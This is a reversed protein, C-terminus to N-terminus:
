TLRSEHDPPLELLDSDRVAEAFLVFAVLDAPLDASKALRRVLRDVLLDSLRGTAALRALAHAIAATEAFGAVVADRGAARALAPRQTWAEAFLAEAEADRLGLISAAISLRTSLRGKAVEEVGAEEVGTADNSGM